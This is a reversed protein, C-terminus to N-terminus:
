AKWQACIPATAHNDISSQLIRLIKTEITAASRYLQKQKYIIQTSKTTDIDSMSKNVFWNNLKYSHILQLLIM